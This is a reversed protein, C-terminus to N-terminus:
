AAALVERYLDALDRGRDELRHRAVARERAARGMQELRGPDGLLAEIADRLAGSDRAPVVLGTRGDEVAEITGTGTDTVVAPVGVAQAEAVAIGFSEARSTSALVFLDAAALHAVLDAEGVRGAFHVNPLGAARATLEGALPGDGVILLNADLARAAEILREYGKYYVLRGVAIVLPSGYRRRLAEVQAPDAAAPGYHAVDVAYPIVRLKDAHRSLVASNEALRSSGCIVASARRLCRDVLVRYAREFRAQRVIEAHYSLVVPRDGASLLAALEGPPNPM